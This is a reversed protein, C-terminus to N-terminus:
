LNPELKLFHYMKQKKTKTDIDFQSIYLEIIFSEINNCLKWCFLKVYFVETLAVLFSFVDHCTINLTFYRFCAQELLLSTVKQEIIKSSTYYTVRVTIKM